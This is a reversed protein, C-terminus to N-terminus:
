LFLKTSYINDEDIKCELLETVSYFSHSILCRYLKDKFRKRGNRYSQM